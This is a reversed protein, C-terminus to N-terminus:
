ISKGKEDIMVGPRYTRVIITIRKNSREIEIRSIQADAKRRDAVKEALKAYYNEIFERIRVDEMLTSGYESDKAYWRSQWDRIIGVRMGVPNVKQGM